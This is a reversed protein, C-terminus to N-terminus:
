VEKLANEISMSISATGGPTYGGPISAGASVLGDIEISIPGNNEMTGIILTGDPAVFASGALVDGATATVGSVDQYADPIAKIAVRSLGYYGSDPAISQVSKTPTAEKYQLTYDGGGGGGPIGNRAIYDLYVEIESLPKDPLIVNQGCIAALYTAIRSTPHDPLTASFGAIYSLYQVIEANQSKPIEEM